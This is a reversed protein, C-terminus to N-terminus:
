SLVVTRLVDSIGQSRCSDLETSTGSRVSPFELSPLIASGKITSLADVWHPVREAVEGVGLWSVRGRTILKESETVPFGLAPSSSSHRNEKMQPTPHFSLRPGDPDGTKEPM